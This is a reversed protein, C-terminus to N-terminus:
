SRPSIPPAARIHPLRRWRRSASKAAPHYRRLPRQAAMSNGRRCVGRARPVPPETGGGRFHAPVGALLDVQENLAPRQRSEAHLRIPIDVRLQYMPAMGGQNFYGAAITYDPHFEKRALNVALEGRQITKRDRALEPTTDSANGLLEQLTMALPAPPEYAPEGLPSGPTRNLLSNIEAEATQRDQQIRIIRTELM